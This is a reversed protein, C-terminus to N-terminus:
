NTKAGLGKLNAVLNKKKAVSGKRYYGKHLMTELSLIPKDRTFISPREDLARIACM